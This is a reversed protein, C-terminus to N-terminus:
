APLGKPEPWVDESVTAGMRRVAAVAEDPHTSCFVLVSPDSTTGNGEYWVAAECRHHILSRLEDPSLAVVVLPQKSGYMVTM